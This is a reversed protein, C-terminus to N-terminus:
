CKVDSLIDFGFIRVHGVKVSHTPAAEVSPSPTADDLEFDTDEHAVVILVFTAWVLSRFAFNVIM